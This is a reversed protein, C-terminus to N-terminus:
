SATVSCWEHIEGLNTGPNMGHDTRSRMRCDMPRGSEVSQQSCLPSLPEKDFSRLKRGNGPSTIWAWNRNGQQVISDGASFERAMCLGAIKQIMGPEFPEFFDLKRISETDTLV